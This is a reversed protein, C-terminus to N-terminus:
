GSGHVSVAKAFFPPLPRDPTIRKIIKALHQLETRDGKQHAFRARNILTNVYRDNLLNSLTLALSDIAASSLKSYEVQAQLRPLADSLKIDFTERLWAVDQASERVVKEVVNNPLQFKEGKIAAITGLENMTRRPGPNGDIIMPRQRNLSSLILAAEHSLSENDKQQNGLIGQRVPGETLKVIDLFAGVVGDPHGCMQEFSHVAIHEAEFARIAASFRGKFNPMPPDDFLNELVEGGKLHQQIVSTVYNVPNRIVYFVDLQDAFGAVWVRFRDLEAASLNSMGEASFLVTQPATEIIEREFEARIEVGKALLIEYNQQGAMKHSIHNRPDSLFATCLADTHNASTGPYLIDHQELLAGRQSFCANQISTTATKPLGAHLIVRRVKQVACM